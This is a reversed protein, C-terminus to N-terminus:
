RHLAKTVPEFGRGGCRRCLDGRPEIEIRVGHRRAAIGGFPPKVQAYQWTVRPDADDVGLHKAIGDVLAKCAVRLNDHADMANPGVRTVLVVVPLGNAPFPGYKAALALQVFERASTTRKVRAWRSRANSESVLRIPLEVIM